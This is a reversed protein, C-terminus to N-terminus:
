SYCGGPIGGFPRAGFPSVGSRGYGKPTVSRMDRVYERCARIADPAVKRGEKLAEAIDHAQEYTLKGLKM